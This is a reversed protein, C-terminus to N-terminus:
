FLDLVAMLGECLQNFMVSNLQYPHWTMLTNNTIFCCIVQFFVPGSGAQPIESQTALFAAPVPHVCIVFVM